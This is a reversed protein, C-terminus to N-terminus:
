RVAASVDIAFPVRGLFATALMSGDVVPLTSM